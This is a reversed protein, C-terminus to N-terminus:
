VLLLVLPLYLLRYCFLLKKFCTVLLVDIRVMCTESSIARKVSGVDLKFKDNMDIYVVRVGLLSAAKLFCVDANRGLIIEPKRIGKKYAFNRYALCALIASESASTTVTGCSRIGGHYLSCLMRIIEAEMKRCAPYIDPFNANSYSFLEFVQLVPM